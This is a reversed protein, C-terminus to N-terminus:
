VHRDGGATAFQSLGTQTPTSATSESGDSRFKLFADCEWNPCSGFSPSCEGPDGCITSVFETGCEPCVVDVHPVNYPQEIVADTRRERALRTKRRSDSPTRLDEDNVLVWGM